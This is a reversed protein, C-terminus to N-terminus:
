EEHRGEETIRKEEKEDLEAEDKAKEKNCQSGTEECAIPSHSEGPNTGEGSNGCGYLLGASLLVALFPILQNLPRGARKFPSQM